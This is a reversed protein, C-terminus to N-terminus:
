ERVLLKGLKLRVQGEVGVACVYDRIATPQTFNAPGCFPLSLATTHPNDIKM